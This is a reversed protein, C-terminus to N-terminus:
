QKGGVVKSSILEAIHSRSYGIEHLIEASHQGLLPAPIHRDGDAYGGFNIPHKVRRMKAGSLDNAEEVVKRAVIQPDTFIAERSRVKAVPVDEANLRALIEDTDWDLFLPAFVQNLERLHGYRESPTSFRSDAILDPRDLARCM